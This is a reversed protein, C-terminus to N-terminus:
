RFNARHLLYLGLLVCVVNPGWALLMLSTMSKANVTSAAFYATGVLLSLILGTSTDRRRAKIGLPIGVFAFALCALSSSYRRPIEGMFRLYSSPKLKDPVTTAWAPSTVYDRIEQNTMANPKKRGAQASRYPLVLPVVEDAVAVKPQDNEDTTAFVADHLKFRFEEKDKQDILEASKAYVYVDHQRPQDDTATRFIHLHEMVNGNYQFAVKTGRMSSEIRELGDQEAVASIMSRPDQMFASMKINDVNAATKPTIQINLWLCLASLAAGIVFVPMALRPLSIGAVRFGTLEQDRSMRGFVLLVSSLFAWPITYVLSFPLAGLLLQPIISLPAGFEVLLIQIQKLVTGLVFIISLFLIAFITGTLIQRGIYRDSVRM